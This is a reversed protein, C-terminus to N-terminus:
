CTTLRLSCEAHFLSQHLCADLNHHCRLTVHIIIILMDLVHAATPDRYSYNIVFVARWKLLVINSKWFSITDTVRHTHPGQLEKM